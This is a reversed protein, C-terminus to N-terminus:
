KRKVTKKKPTAKTDAYEGLKFQKRIEKPFYDNPEAYAIKKKTTTKKM